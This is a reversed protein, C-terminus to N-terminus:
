KITKQVICRISDQFNQIVISDLNGEFFMRILNSRENSLKEPFDITQSLINLLDDECGAVEVAGSEVIPKYHDFSYFRTYNYPYINKGPPNYGVNIAPKDFMCLELSITSAVNIGAICHKLLSSFFRQDEELPTQYNKEWLVEPIIIDPRRKKLEDFVDYRDKAYTRVVLKYQDGLEKLRDAIREAVYPEEPLHHSMGSSYLFYEEEPKLGLIQKLESKSLHSKKDFHGIFQPTGTVFINEARVAPYIRKLDEKIATNWAFYYQYSPIIRGQSTLNDWSFLFAATKIKLSNAAYMIAHANRAHSHSTNFVLAPNIEQLYRRWYRVSGEYVSIKQLFSETFPLLNLYSIFVALSKKVIRTLKRYFGTAEVDRMEWRVKAAESWIYRNHALDMIESLFNFLYSFYYNKLEVTSNGLSSLRKELIISPFVTIINLEYEGALKSIIGSYLFNRYAEGRPIIIVIKNKM